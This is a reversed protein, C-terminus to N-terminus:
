LNPHQGKKTKNAHLAATTTGQLNTNNPDTMHKTSTMLSGKTTHSDRCPVSVAMKSM